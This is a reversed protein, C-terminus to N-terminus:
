TLDSANSTALDLKGDTNFDGVAVSQPGNGTASSVAPQFTGNANGLLVGVTSTGASTVALDPRGDGNFDGTAVDQPGAGTPYHVAASFSLLRREELTECAARRLAQHARTTLVRQTFSTPFNTVSPSPSRRITM